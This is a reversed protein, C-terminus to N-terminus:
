QLIRRRVLREALVFAACTMVALWAAPALLAASAAGAALARCLTVAHTLPLFWAATQAWSPMSDLPFFVGSFVFMVQIGLTFYYEFSNYSSALATVVLGLMGFALGVLFAVPLMLIAQWSTVLGLAATIVLVLAVALVSKSAGWLADGAVIDAVSCPTALLARYTQQESMRTYSGFTTEFSASNMAASAVLGPALFVAYPVGGIDTVFRGVGWGIAVLYFVPGGLASVVFAPAYRKWSEYDRRWIRLAGRTPVM